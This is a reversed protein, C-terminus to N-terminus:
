LVNRGLIQSCLNVSSLLADEHFGYRYYSGTFHVPGAKNLDDIYNQANASKVDFLPHHYTISQIIKEPNVFNGGNINIFFNMRKSVGQLKNMYYVTYSQNEKIIFNWSSWNSKLKPMVQEDTHVIAENKQYSFCKLINVQSDTPNQLLELATDAHTAIIVKDFFDEGHITKVNVGNPRTSIKIAGSGIKIKDKFPAILRNRYERSGGNVTKWQLQGGPEVFGHNKFFRVLSRAPFDDMKEVPTSWVASSMPVLFNDYFYSGLGLDKIYTRLSMDQYRPDNLLQDAHKHFKLIDWLMKLFPPNLLNRKQAFLGNLSSGNYELNLLDNRVSFSMDTDRYPVGLLNFLKVMNPYTKENFVMFGTDMPCQEVGDFVDITNTHGGVYNDKEYVTVDFSDKLFYAASMGAMGTGIIALRQM